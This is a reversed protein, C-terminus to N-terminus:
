IIENIKFSQNYKIRLVKYFIGRLLEDSSIDILIM